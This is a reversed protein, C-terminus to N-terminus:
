ATRLRELPNPESVSPSRDATEQCHVCYKAWPVADLRKPEIEEECHLCTGYSGDAVRGLADQVDRLLASEHDLISIALERESAFQGEDITDPTKEIAIEDRTGLGLSLEGQKADLMRKYKNLVVRTM